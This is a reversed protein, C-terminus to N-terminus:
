IAPGGQPTGSVIAFADGVLDALPDTSMFDVSIDATQGILQFVEGGLPVYRVVAPNEGLEGLDDPLRGNEAVYRQINNVQILMVMRLGAERAAPPISPVEPVLAAPPFTWLWVSVLALILLVATYHHPRGSTPAPGNRLESRRARDKLIGTPAAEYESAEPLSPPQSEDHPEDRM